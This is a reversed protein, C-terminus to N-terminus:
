SEGNCRAKRIAQQTVHSNPQAIKQITGSSFCNRSQTESPEGSSADPAVHKRVDSANIPYCSRTPRSYVIQM